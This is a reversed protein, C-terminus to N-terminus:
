PLLRSVPAVVAVRDNGTESTFVRTTFLPGRLTAIGGSGRLLSPGGTGGLVETAKGGRTTDATWRVVRSLDRDVVLLNAGDWAVAVPGALHDVDFVTAAPSRQKFDPQGLVVDAAAGTVPPSSWRLVRNNGADAVFLAGQAIACGSPASLTAADPLGGRNGLASTADAQGLVVDAPAGDQAPLKNWGLVRNNGTDVVYVRAGDSCVGAPTRLSAASPAGGRNAQANAFDVQGLVRVADTGKAPDFALVRHNDTDAVLVSAADAWVGRPGSLTAATPAGGRNPLTLADNPQGYVRSPKAAQPLKADTVFVRNNNTDAVFLENGSLALGRPQASVGGEALSSQNFGNTFMSPQGVVSTAAAGTSLGQLAYALIRHNRSDAVWLRTGDSALGMPESLTSASVGGSNPQAATDSAQGLAAVSALSGFDFVHVRSSDVESVYLKGGGVVLSRPRLVSTPSTTQADTPIGRYQTNDFRYNPNSVTTGDAQGVFAGPTPSTLVNDWRVVRNNETDAVWLTSGDLAIATPLNFGNPVVSFPGVGRHPKVTKFDPQGIVRSAAQGNTTPWADWVLVRSNLRDAVFLHAGDSAVDTPYFFGDADADSDGDKDVDLRGRNPRRGSFDAQGLVLDAAVGSQQPVKNWVLVRHNETDAVVLHTGDLTVASPGSLTKASPSVLDVNAIFSKEDPQGVVAVAKPLPGAVLDATKYILVRNNGRDAVAVTDNSVAVDTPQALTAASVVRYDNRENVTFGAQGIVRTAPEFNYSPATDWILLRRDDPVILTGGGHGTAPFSGFTSACIRSPNTGVANAFASAMSRSPDPQGLVFAAPTPGSPATRSAVIRNLSYDRVGVGAGLDPVIAGPRSIREGPQNAPMWSFVQFDAPANTSFSARALGPGASSSVWISNGALAAGYPISLGLAGGFASSSAFDPQGVVVDAPQGVTTPFSSWALIRNNLGDGVVLRTGDSDVQTAGSFTSASVGGVNAKNTTFDAQGLVLDAPALAATPIQNWVLVRSGTSAVVRKGDSWVDGLSGTTGFLSASIAALTTQLDPQGLVLDPSLGPSAPLLYKYVLLRPGNGVFLEKGDYYGATFPQGSLNRLLSPADIAENRDAGIYGEITWAVPRETVGYTGPGPLPGVVRRQSPGSAAVARSTRDKSDYAFLLADKPPDADVAVALTVQGAPTDGPLDVTCMTPLSSDGALEAPLAVETVTVTAGKALPRAPSSVTCRGVSCGSLLADNDCSRTTSTSSCTCGSFALAAVTPALLLWARM